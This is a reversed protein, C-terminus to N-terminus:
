SDKCLVAQQPADVRGSFVRMEERLEFLKLPFILKKARAESAERRLKAKM